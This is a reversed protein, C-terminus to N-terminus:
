TVLISRTRQWIIDLAKSREAIVKDDRLKAAAEIEKLTEQLRDAGFVASSGAVKHTRSATELFDHVEDSNLWIELKDVESVFRSRLKVFTKEGLADRTEANHSHNILITGNNDSHHGTQDLVNRLADRSLPKTLIGNMGDKLFEGREEIMANATLAYISTKASAGKESRITRTASRGDMVPMSIDMLIIDFKIEKSLEVAEFGDHAEVVTHGDAHLMERVVVRNIENDEVLLVKLCLGPQHKTIKAHIIKPMEAVHVNLKIWFLSGKGVTSEVGIEGGLARVFRKAISLGLGTGGVDRDYATNGTVFDDFVRRTLNESMGQGTDTISILLKLDDEVGINKITVLVKGRRTFKVANGILNMMVHQLRHHDSLIWDHKVGDWRWILSTKNRLATGAQNDVIDQMLESINVPELRTNLKGADYRTIDLVDSVHSLLLRGSTEMYSVYRDQNKNLETDRLLNMNGLLGNLPTRIEHSMTSLFETKMKESALAKDHAMVLEAEAMVEHSIDRLFSIFIRGEETEADQTAIEVPFFHGDKHKAELKLRGKGTLQMGGGFRVYDEKNDHASRLNNSVMITDIKQGLVAVKSHGFIVEAAPSFDIINGNSDCMVVGDLSTSMVSEMRSMTQNKERERRYVRTNLLNLYIIALALVGILMAIAIALKVMTLAVALRQVDVAKAFVALGSNSLTRVVPRIQLTMTLLDPMARLLEEDASDIITVSQNLFASLGNLYELSIKNSRLDEFSPAEQLTTVRSFFVDFEERLQIIDVSDQSAQKAFELFEVEVQALAWQLNDSQASGLLRIERVVNYTLFAVLALTVLGASVIFFRKLNVIKSATAAM